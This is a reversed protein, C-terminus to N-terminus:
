NLVEARVTEMELSFIFSWYTCSIAKLRPVGIAGGDGDMGVQTVVPM